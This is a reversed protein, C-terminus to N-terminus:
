LLIPINVIVLTIYLKEINVFHELHGCAPAPRRYKALSKDWKNSKITRGAKGAMKKHSIKNTCKPRGQRSSQVKEYKREL